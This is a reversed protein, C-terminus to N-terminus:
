DKKYRRTLINSLVDLEGHTVSEFSGKQRFGYIERLPAVKFNDQDSEPYSVDIPETNMIWLVSYQMYRSLGSLLKKTHENQNAVEGPLTQSISFTKM